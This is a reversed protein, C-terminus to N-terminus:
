PHSQLTQSDIIIDTAAVGTIADRTFTIAGEATIISRGIATFLSLITRTTTAVPSGYIEINLSAGVVPPPGVFVKSGTPYYVCGSGSLATALLIIVVRTHLISRGM